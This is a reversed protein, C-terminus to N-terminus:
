FRPLTLGGDVLIAQGVTYPLRGEALTVVTEAVDDPLGWRELAATSLSAHGPLDALDGLAVSSKGPLAALEAVLADSQAKNEESPRDNLIVNFGSAALRRACALGIGRFAGSVLAVPRIKPTDNM